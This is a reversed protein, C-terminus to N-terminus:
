WIMEPPSIRGPPRQHVWHIQQPRNRIVSSMTGRPRTRTLPRTKRIRRAHSFCHSMNKERPNHRADCLARQSCDRYLRANGRARRCLVPRAKLFRAKRTRTRYRGSLCRREHEFLSQYWCVSITIYMPPPMRPVISRTASTTHNTRLTYLM